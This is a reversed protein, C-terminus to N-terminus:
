EYANEYERYRREAEAIREDLEQMRRKIGDIGVIREEFNNGSLQIMDSDLARITDVGMDELNGKTEIRMHGNGEQKMSISNSEIGHFWSHITADKLTNLSHLDSHIQRIDYIHEQHDQLVKESERHGRYRSNRKMVHPYKYLPSIPRSADMLEVVPNVAGVTDPPTNPLTPPAPEEPNSWTKEPLPELVYLLANTQCENVMYSVSYSGLAQPKLQLLKNTKQVIEMSMDHSWVGVETYPHIANFTASEGLRITVNTPTLQIDCPAKEPAIVTITATKSAQQGCTNNAILEVTYVGAQTFQLNHQESNHYLEKIVEKNHNWTYTVDGECYDVSSYKFAISEGKLISLTLPTLSLSIDPVDRKMEVEVYDNELGISPKGKWNEHTIIQQYSLGKIWSGTMMSLGLSNASKYKITSIWGETADDYKYRIALIPGYKGTGFYFGNVLRIINPNSANPLETFMSEGTSLSFGANDLIQQWTLTHSEPPESAVPNGNQDQTQNAFYFTVEKINPM